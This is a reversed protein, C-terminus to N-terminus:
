PVAQGEADWERQRKMGRRIIGVLGLLWLALWFCIATVRFWARSQTSSSTSVSAGSYAPGGVVVAGGGALSEIVSLVERGPDLEPDAEMEARTTLADNLAAADLKESARRWQGSSDMMEYELSPLRVDILPSPSRAAGTDAHILVSQYDSSTAGRGTLVIQVDPAGPHLSTMQVMAQNTHTKAISVAIIATLVVAVLPLLITWTVAALIAVTIPRVARVMGPVLIGVKRLDCGCEPCRFENLGEVAYGCRGCSPERVSSRRALVSTLAAIVAVIILLLLIIQLITAM